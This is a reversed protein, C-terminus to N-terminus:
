AAGSPPQKSEWDRFRQVEKQISRIFFGLLVFDDIIGVFPIYDPIIDLPSFLYIFLVAAFVMPKWPFSRYLGNRWAAILRLFGSM